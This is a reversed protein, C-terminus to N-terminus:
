SCLEGPNAVYHAVRSRLYEGGIPGYGSKLRYKRLIADVVDIKRNSFPDLAEFEIFAYFREVPNLQPHNPKIWKPQCTIDINPDPVLIQWMTGKSALQIRRNKSIVKQEMGNVKPWPCSPWYFAQRAKIGSLTYYWALNIDPAYKAIRILRSMAEVWMTAGDETYEDIVELGRMAFTGLSVMNNALREAISSFSQRTASYLHHGQPYDRDLDEGAKRLIDLYTVNCASRHLTEDLGKDYAHVRLLLNCGAPFRAACHLPAYVLHDLDIMALLNGSRDVIINHAGLDANVLYFFPDKKMESSLISNCLHLIESVDEVFDLGKFPKKESVLEKQFEQLLSWYFDTPSEPTCGQHNLISPSYFQRLSKDISRAFFKALKIQVRALEYYIHRQTLTLEQSHNPAAIGLKMLQQDDNGFFRSAVIGPVLETILMFTEGLKTRLRRLGYFKPVPIDTHRRNLEAELITPM